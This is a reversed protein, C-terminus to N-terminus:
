KKKQEIIKKNNIDIVVKSGDKKFLVFDAKEDGNMDKVMFENQNIDKAKYVSDIRNIFKETERQNNKSDAGVLLIGILTTAAFGLIGGQEIGYSRARSLDGKYTKYDVKYNDDDYGSDNDDGGIYTSGKFTQRYTNSVPSITINM